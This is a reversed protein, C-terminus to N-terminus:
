LLIMEKLKKRKMIDQNETMIIIKKIIQNIDMMIKEKMIEKDTKQDILIRIILSIIIIIRKIDEEEKNM